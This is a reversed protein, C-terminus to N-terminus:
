QLFWDFRKLEPITIRKQPDVELITVLMESVMCVLTLNADESAFHFSYALSLYEFTGMAAGSIRHWPDQNRLEGAIFTAFEPASLTPEDWPTDLM